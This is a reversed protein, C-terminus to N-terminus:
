NSRLADLPDIRSAGRAPLYCALLGVAGLLVAVAAFVVPDRATVGFLLTTLVRSALLAAGLGLALGVAIMAAGQRMVLRLVDGADAGVAMRVGIERRRQRVSYSLVGYVGVVALALALAAFGGLLVAYFRPQAVSASLRAEMSMVSELPIDPDISRVASRLAPVLAMPDRRSRVVLYAGAARMQESQRYTVYVEPQPASDLGAHRVDGVIGVVESPERFVPLERGILREGPFYTRVFAENVVVVPRSGGNDSAALPRGAILRLRMAELYGASVVRLSATAPGADAGRGPLDFAVMMLGPSLPLTSVTGASAVDSLATVQELLRDYFQAAREGSYTSPPLTLRTTLVNSPDYGPDVDILTAFSRALLGAGVLLLVAIALEGIALTLRTRNGRVFRLGNSGSYGAEGLARTLSVRLAQLAPATGFLMGSVVAAAATFLLVRGDLSLEELRPFNEPALAPLARQLSWALLLGAAAGLSALLLSEILFQRVLRWRAAGIAARIAIERRREAGRALLLNTLNVVAILLVMVVVAMLILLAPRIGRVMEEKLPILQLDPPRTSDLPTRPGAADAFLGRVVTRGEAEAQQLSVGPKLRALAAFAFVSRERPDRSPPPVFHPTWIEADHDPFFFGPPMVGVVEHANGDLTMSRGVVGPDGDFLNRWAADSLVVVRNAPPAEEGPTFSRGLAPSTRLMPFLAASVSAGLLRRAEGRGTLTYARPSYAAIQDLTATRELWAHYTENTLIAMPRGRGLPRDESVRLLGGSDPYPLPRLLVSNVVSFVATNAGIGLALTVAAIATLAPRALLQRIGVRIDQVLSDM